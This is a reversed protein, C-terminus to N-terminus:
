ELGNVLYEIGGKGVFTAVEITETNVTTVGSPVVYRIFEEIGFRNTITHTHGDILGPLLVMSDADIVLTKDEKSPDHDPGVYAILGDKVWISQKRIFERTFVNFVIGNTIITDPAINGLAVESLNKRNENDNMSSQLGIVFLSFWDMDYIAYLGVV